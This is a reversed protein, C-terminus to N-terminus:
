IVPYTKESLRGDAYVRYQDSIPAHNSCIENSQHKLIPCVNQFRRYFMVYLMIIFM